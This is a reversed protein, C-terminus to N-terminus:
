VPPPALRTLADALGRSGRPEGRPGITVLTDRLATSRPGTSACKRGSNRRVSAGQGWVEARMSMLGDAQRSCRLRLVM